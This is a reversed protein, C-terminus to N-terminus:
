FCRRTSCFTVIQVHIENSSGLMNSCCHWGRGRGFGGGLTSLRVVGWGRMGRKSAKALNAEASLEPPIAGIPDKEEAKLLNSGAKGRVYM